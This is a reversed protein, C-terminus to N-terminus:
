FLFNIHVEWLLPCHLPFLPNLRDYSVLQPLYSDFMLCVFVILMIVFLLCTTIVFLLLIIPIILLILKIM